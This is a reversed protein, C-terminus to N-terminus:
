ILVRCASAFINFINIYIKTPNAHFVSFTFINKSYFGIIFEIKFEGKYQKYFAEFFFQVSTLQM